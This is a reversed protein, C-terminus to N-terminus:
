NSLPKDYLEAGDGMDEEVGDPLYRFVQIRHNYTDVVYIQDLRDIFLGSPLWFQGPNVGRRGFVLQISGNSDFVQVADMLSDSVYINGVSDVAIGKPRSFFGNADGPAGFQRVFQGEPTLVMIRFNLSDTVYIQGRNDITIDTPNNFKRLGDGRGGIRRLVAGNLDLVVIQSAKTETVYLLKTLAHFAIGTPRDLPKLLLPKLSGDKPDFRYVMNTVSDTIYLRGVDDETLGIPSRLLSEGQSGIISYRDKVIDLCHVLGAGPDALYVLGSKSRLVGYPRVITSKGEGVVAKLMRQWFDKSNGIDGSGAIDKVWIVRSKGSAFRWSIGSNPVPIPVVSHQNAACSSLICLMQVIAIFAAANRVTAKNIALRKRTAPM